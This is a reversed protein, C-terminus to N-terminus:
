CRPIPTATTWLAVILGRSISQPKLPEVILHSYRTLLSRSEQEGLHFTDIIAGHRLEVPHRAAALNNANFLRLCSQTDQKPKSGLLVGVAPSPNSQPHAFVPVGTADLFRNRPSALAYGESAQM